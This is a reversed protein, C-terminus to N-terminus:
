NICDKNSNYWQFLQHSLWDIIYYLGSFIDDSTKLSVVSVVVSHIILYSENITIDFLLILFFITIISILYIDATDLNLYDQFLWKEM